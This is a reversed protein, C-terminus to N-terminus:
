LRAQVMQEIASRASIAPRGLLSELAPDTVAFEGRRAARFMGLTFDATPAPLGRAVATDKWEEDDVVVRTITRGTLDSLVRAVETFDLAEPATLPPSIGNLVGPQTLAIADVEALDAHSTWSIPGDEPLRLEGTELATPVYIELTSAYFGHRLATWAIPQEALFAQTAAHQPQAGFLSDPSAAQHSTYLVRSAGARVAAAIATRNAEAAGPGRIAASVILVQEADEFADDLTGPQTFDGTRVRVGRAALDAAKSVDRVSLGVTDAPVRDLLRDVVQSGLRGSGGTVIIM